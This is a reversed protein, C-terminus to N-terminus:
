QDLFFNGFQWGAIPLILGIAVLVLGLGMVLAGVLAARKGLIVPAKAPFGLGAPPWQQTARIRSGLYMVYAGLGVAPMGALMTVVLVIIGLTFTGSEVSPEDAPVAQSLLQWTVYSFVVGCVALTVMMVILLRRHVFRTM